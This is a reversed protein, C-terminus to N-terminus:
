LVPSMSIMVSHSDCSPMFTGSKEVKSPLHPQISQKPSVWTAAIMCRCTRGPMNLSPREGGGIWNHIRHGSCFHVEEYVFQHHHSCTCQLMLFTRSINKRGYYSKKSAATAALLSMVLFILFVSTVCCRVYQYFFCPFLLIFLAVHFLVSCCFDLKFAQLELVCVCM